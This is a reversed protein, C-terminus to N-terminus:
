HVFYYNIMIVIGGANNWVIYSKDGQQYMNMEKLVDPDMQLSAALHDMISEIIFLAPM